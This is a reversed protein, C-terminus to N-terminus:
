IKEYHARINQVQPEIGERQARKKRRKQSNIKCDFGGETESLVPLLRGKYAPQESHEKRKFATNHRCLASSQM